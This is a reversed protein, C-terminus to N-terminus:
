FCKNDYSADFFSVCFSRHLKTLKKNTEKTVLSNVKRLIVLHLYFWSIFFHMAM